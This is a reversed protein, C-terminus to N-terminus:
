NASKQVLNASLLNPTFRIKRAILIAVAAKIIPSDMRHMHGLLRVHRLNKEILIDAMANITTSGQLSNGCEHDQEEQIRGNAANM